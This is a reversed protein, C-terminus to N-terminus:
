ARYSPLAETQDGEKVCNHDKGPPGSMTYSPLYPFPPQPDYGQPVEFRPYIQGTSFIAVTILGVSLEPAPSEAATVETVTVESAAPRRCKYCRCRPCSFCAIIVFIVFSALVTGVIIYSTSPKPTVCEEEEEETICKGRCCYHSSSIPHCDRQKVCAEVPVFVLVAFFVIFYVLQLAMNSRYIIINKVAQIVYTMCWPSLSFSSFHIGHQIFRFDLFTFGSKRYVNDKKEGSIFRFLFTSDFYLCM